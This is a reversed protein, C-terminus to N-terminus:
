DLYFTRSRLSRELKRMMILNDFEIAYSRGNHRHCLKMSTFPGSFYFLLPKRLVEQEGAFPKTHYTEIVCCMLGKCAFLLYNAFM